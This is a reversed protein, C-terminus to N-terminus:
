ADKESRGKPHVPNTQCRGSLVIGVLTRLPGYFDFVDAFEDLLSAKLEPINTSDNGSHIQQVSAAPEPFNPPLIGLEVRTFWSLLIGKLETCLIITTSTKHGKYRLQVHLQGITTLSEGNAAVLTEGNGRVLANKFEGLLNLVECIQAIIVCIRVIQLDEYNSTSHISHKEQTNVANYLNSGTLPLTEQQEFIMKFLM